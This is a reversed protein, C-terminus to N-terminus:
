LPHPLTEWRKYIAKLITLIYIHAYTHLYHAPISPAVPSNLLNSIHYVSECIKLLICGTVRTAM